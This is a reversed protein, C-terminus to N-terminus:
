VEDQIWRFKLDLKFEVQQLELIVWAQGFSTLSKIIQLYGHFMRFFISYIYESLYRLFLTKPYRKSLHLSQIAFLYQMWSTFFTDPFDINPVRSSSTMSLETHYSEWWVPIDPRDWVNDSICAKLNDFVTYWERPFKCVSENRLSRFVFFIDPYNSFSKWINFRSKESAMLIIEIIKTNLIQTDHSWIYARDLGGDEERGEGEAGKIM